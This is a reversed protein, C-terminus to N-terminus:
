EGLTGIDHWAMVMEVRRGGMVQPKLKNIKYLKSKPYPVGKRIRCAEIRNGEVGSGLVVNLTQTTLGPCPDQQALRFIHDIILLTRRHM